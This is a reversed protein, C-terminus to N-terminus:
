WQNISQHTQNLSRFTNRSRLEIDLQRNAFRQSIGDHVAILFIWIFFYVDPATAFGAVSHRDDHRVLAFSEVELLYEAVTERRIGRVYM